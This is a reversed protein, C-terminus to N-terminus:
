QSIANIFQLWEKPTGVEYYKVTLLYVPLKKDKPNAQLKCVKYDLPSLKEKKKPMYFPISPARNRASHNVFKFSRANIKM